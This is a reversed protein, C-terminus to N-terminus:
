IQRVAQDIWEPTHAKEAVQVDAFLLTARGTTEYEHRHADTIEVPAHGIIMGGDYPPLGDESEEPDMFHATPGGHSLGLELAKKSADEGITNATAPLPGPHWNAIVLGGLAPKVVRKMYGLAFLMKVDYVEMALRLIETSAAVTIVGKPPEVEDKFPDNNNILYIHKGLGLKDAREWIGAGPNNCVVFAITADMAGSLDALRAAEFTTGSGSALVGIRNESGIAM